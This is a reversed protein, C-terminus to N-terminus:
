ALDAPAEEVDKAEEAFKEELFKIVDVKTPKANAALGKEKALKLLENYDTPLTADKTEEDAPKAVTTTKKPTTKVKAETFLIVDGVKLLSQFYPHEAVDESVEHTGVPFEHRGSITVVERPFNFQAKM